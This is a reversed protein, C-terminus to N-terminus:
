QRSTIGIGATADSRVVAKIERRRHEAMMMGLVAALQLVSAASKTIAYLYSEGTSLARVSQTSSTVELVHQGYMLVTGTTSRLM